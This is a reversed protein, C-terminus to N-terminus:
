FLTRELSDNVLVRRHSQILRDTFPDGFTLLMPALSSWLFRAGPSLLSSHTTPSSTSRLPRLVGYTRSRRPQAVALAGALNMRHRIACRLCPHPSRAPHSFASIRSLLSHIPYPLTPPPSTSSPFLLLHPVLFNFSLIHIPFFRAAATRIYAVADVRM